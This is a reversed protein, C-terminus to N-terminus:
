SSANNAAYAAVLLLKKQRTLKKVAAERISAASRDSQPEVFAIAYAPDTRFFRAGLKGGACHEKFRRQPDTTIGTYLRGGLTQVM